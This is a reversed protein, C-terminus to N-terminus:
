SFIICFFKFNRRLGQRPRGPRHATPLVAQTGPMQTEFVSLAEGTTGARRWPRERPGEPGSARQPAHTGQVDSVRGSVWPLEDNSNVILSQPGPLPPSSPLCPSVVDVCAAEFPVNPTGPERTRACGTCFVKRGSARPLLQLM